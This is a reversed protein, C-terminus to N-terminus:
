CSLSCINNFMLPKPKFSTLIYEVGLKAIQERETKLLWSPVRHLWGENHNTNYLTAAEIPLYDLPYVTVGRKFMGDNRAAYSMAQEQTEGRTIVTINSDSFAYLHFTRM